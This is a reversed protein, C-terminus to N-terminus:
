AEKGVTDARAELVDIGRAELAAVIRAAESRRYEAVRRPVPEPLPTLVEALAEIARCRCALRGCAACM